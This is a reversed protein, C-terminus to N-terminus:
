VLETLYGIEQKAAPKQFYRVIIAHQWIVHNLVKVLLSFVFLTQHVGSLM